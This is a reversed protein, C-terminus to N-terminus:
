GEDKPVVPIFDFDTTHPTGDDADRRYYKKLNAMDQLVQLATKIQGKAIAMRYLNSRLAFHHHLDDDSGFTDALEDLAKKIYKEIQRSGINWSESGLRIIEASSRYELLWTKIQQLRQHAQLKNAKGAM